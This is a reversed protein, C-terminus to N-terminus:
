RVILKKTVINESAEIRVYYIGPSLKEVNIQGSYDNVNQSLVAKGSNDFITLKHIIGSTSHITFMNDTPNPSLTIHKDSDYLNVYTGENGKLHFVFTDVRGADPYQPWFDECFVTTIIIMAEKVEDPDFHATDVIAIHIKRLTDGPQFYFLSNQNNLEVTNPGVDTTVKYDRGVEAMGPHTIPFSLRTHYNGSLVPRPLKYEVDVERYNQVLTDGLGSINWVTDMKMSPSRFSGEELFIGSDYVNDGADAVALYMHYNRCAMITASATLKVTYGNFIPPSSFSNQCYYQSNTLICPTGPTAISGYTGGNVTNITVPTVSNPLLAVNWTHNSNTVPDYGTVFFGFVDNMDSCVYDPYEESAFVYNFAVTDSFAVFDFDLAARDYFTVNSLIKSLNTDPTQVNPGTSSNANPYLSNQSVNSYTGTTMVIGSPVPFNVNGRNFIGFQTAAGSTTWNSLVVGDGALYQQILTDASTPAATVTFSQSYGMTM